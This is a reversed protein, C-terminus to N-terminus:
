HVSCPMRRSGFASLTLRVEALEPIKWYREYSLLTFTDGLVRGMRNIVREAGAQKNARLYGRWHILEFM